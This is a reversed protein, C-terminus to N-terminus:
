SAGGMRHVYDCLRTASELAKRTDRSYADYLARGEACKIIDPEFARLSACADFLPGRLRGSITEALEYDIV